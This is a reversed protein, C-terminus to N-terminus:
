FFLCCKKRRSKYGTCASFIYVHENFGLQREFISERHCGCNRRLHLNLHLRLSRQIGFEKSGSSLNIRGRLLNPVRKMSQELHFQRNITATKEMSGDDLTSCGQTGPSQQIIDTMVRSFQGQSEVTRGVGGTLRDLTKPGFWGLVNKSKCPLIFYSKISESKESEM